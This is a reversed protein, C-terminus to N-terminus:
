YRAFHLRPSALSAGSVRFFVWANVALSFGFSLAIYLRRACADASAGRPLPTPRRARVPQVHERRDGALRGPRGDDERHHEDDPHERRQARTLRPPSLLPLHPVSKTGGLAFLMFLSTGVYEGIQVCVSLSPADLPLAARVM